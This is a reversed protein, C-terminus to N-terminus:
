NGMHKQFFEVLRPYLDFKNEEKEFGHGEKRVMTEYTVGHEKFAKELAHYHSMPVRVDDSGHVLFVPVKIRDALFAPSNARLEEQDRGIALTLYREASANGATDGDEYMNPLSYVGVYGVACQYLDPERIVGMLAAYGGYSGGYICIKDADAYGQEIAWLTADTVDDQMKRGWQRYGSQLFERGYGGSGRFNVQLVAFGHAALYQNEHDFGWYDRVGHPGGHVKVILPPKTTNDARFKPLTLYGNLTVGDRAELSFPEMPSMLKQDIGNLRSAIFKAEFTETNFLYFEGPNQDSYVLMVALKQDRTASAIIVRQEGFAHTIGQILKASFNDDLYTREIKGPTFEVGVLSGDLGWILQDPDVINGQTIPRIKVDVTDFEFVEQVDSGMDSFFYAYRNDDSFGVLRLSDGPKFEDLSIREWTEHNLRKFYFESKGKGFEDNKKEEYFASLRLNGANDAFLARANEPQDAQYHLRGDHVNLLYSKPMGGDRWFYRSILIHQPDDPLLSLVEFAAVDSTFIEKRQRGNANAAYLNPLGEKDDYLGVRTRGQFIFREDTVWHVGSIRKNKGVEFSSKPQNNKRDIVVLRDRDGADAHVIFYKGNPSIVMNKYGNNSFYDRVDTPPALQKADAMVAMPTSLLLAILSLRLGKMWQKMVM